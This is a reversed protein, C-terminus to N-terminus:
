PRRSTAPGPPRASRTTSSRCVGRARRGSAADHRRLQAGDVGYLWASRVVLAPALRRAGPARRRAQKSGYVSRPGTPDSEVYPRPRGDGDLPATGDFVYDTSIHLLPIGIEAAARALNGAGDANVAHAQAEKTEAGDVDTWAACNIIAEPRESAFFASVAAADTIDLEPLDVLVLEHGAREAVRRM